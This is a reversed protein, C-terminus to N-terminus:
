AQSFYRLIPRAPSRRTVEVFGAETFTSVLGTFVSVTNKQKGGSDIPYAEIVKAGRKQAFLIAAKLLQGTLGQRRQGRMVYFCTVSWVPLDDIRQLVKSRELSPYAERPGIACWGIPTGSAYVLIGPEQGALIIKKMARKNGAYHNESFEARSQRWWMCWCGACAGHPGFLREFDKWRDKTVPHFELQAPQAVM